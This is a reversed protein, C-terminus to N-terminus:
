RVMSFLRRYLMNFAAAPRVAAFGPNVCRVFAVNPTRLKHLAALSALDAEDLLSPGGRNTYYMISTANPNHNLGLLHGIEHVATFFLEERTLPAKANFAVWGQFGSRTVLHSKAVTSDDFLHPQGDLLEMACLSTQDLHWRMDIVTSWFNLAAQFQAALVPNSTELRVGLDMSEYKLLESSATCTPYAGTWNAPLAGSFSLGVCLLGLALFRM